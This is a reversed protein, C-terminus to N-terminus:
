HCVLTPNMCAHPKRQTMIPKRVFPLLRSIAGSTIHDLWIRKTNHSERCNYYIFDGQRAAVIAEGAVAVIQDENATGELSM